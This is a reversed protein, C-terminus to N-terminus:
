KQKEELLKVIDNVTKMSALEEDSIKVDFKSELELVIEVSDLSDIGLDDKLSAELTILNEDINTTSVLVEKVQELM